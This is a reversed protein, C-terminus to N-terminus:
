PNIMAASDVAQFFRTLKGDALTWVHTANVTFEKGTAKWLGQYYGAMVVKSGDSNGILEQVDIHFNELYDDFRGFVNQLVAEPGIFPGDGEVFPLGKCEHWEIAPDFVALVAPINAAAFDQYLQEVVAISNM